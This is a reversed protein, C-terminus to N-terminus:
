SLVPEVLVETLVSNSLFCGEHAKDHMEHIEAEDPIHDGAFAVKPRLVVKSVAMKGNSNKGLFAVANDEYSKVRFKKMAAIALFTLLHCSSLSAAFAEEPNVFEAKGLYEPAASAQIRIGGGFTWAHTRTYNKYSFDESEEKWLLNVKYGSM